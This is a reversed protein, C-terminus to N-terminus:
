PYAADMDGEPAGEPVAGQPPRAFPAVLRVEAKARLEGLQREIATRYRERTLLARVEDRAELFTRGSFAAPHSAYYERQDDEGLHAIVTLRSGLYRDVRADRQLLTALTSESAGYRQLFARYAAASPFRDAFDKILHAVEENELQFVRLRDAEALALRQGISWSLAAKLDEDSLPEDARGAGHLKVTVVRAEFELESLLLPQKDLVAVIRDLVRRRGDGGDLVTGGDPTSAAVAACLLISLKM